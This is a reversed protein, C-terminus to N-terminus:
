PVHHSQPDVGALPHAAPQHIHERRYHPQFGHKCRAIGTHGSLGQQDKSGRLSFRYASTRCKMPLEIKHPITLDGCLLRDASALVHQQMAEVADKSDGGLIHRLLDEHDQAISTLVGLQSAETMYQFTRAHLTSFVQQLVRHDSTKYICDHFEADVQGCAFADGTKAIEHMKRVLARIASPKPEEM